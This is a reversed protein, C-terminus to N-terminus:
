IGVVLMTDSLIGGGRGRKRTIKCGHRKRGLLALVARNLV